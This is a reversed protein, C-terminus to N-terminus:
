LQTGNLTAEISVIIDLSTIGAPPEYTIGITGGKPIVVTTAFGNFTVADVNPLYVTIEGSQSNLTDGQVGQYINADISNSSGFNRNLRQANVANTVITGEVPDRLIRLTPQGGTGVYDKINVVFANIILNREENNKLYFLASEGTANLTVEDSSLNYTDGSESAAEELTLDVGTTM